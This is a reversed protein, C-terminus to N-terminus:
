TGVNQINEKIGMYIERVRLDARIQEPKGDAIIEGYHLVIIRDALGFVLDMDHAVLLMTVDGGVKQLMRIIGASETSTLGSNPEDLLLLKPRPALSLAIELRRQEGYSLNEVLENIRERLAAVTVLEHAEALLHAYNTIPRFLQFRFRKTGLVALMANDLVSLNHFLSTIQFSRSQGFHVRRHTPMNTIDKEFFYIRGASASEQGTILNFLTTKGAGNPGIIALRENDGVTFSIDKLAQVGGFNRSLGDIRLVEM